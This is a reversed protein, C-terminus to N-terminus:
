LKVDPDTQLLSICLRITSVYGQAARLKVLRGTLMVNRFDPYVATEGGPPDLGTEKDLM